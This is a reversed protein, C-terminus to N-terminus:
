RLPIKNKAVHNFNCYMLTIQMDPFSWLGFLRMFLEKGISIFAFYHSLMACWTETTLRWSM